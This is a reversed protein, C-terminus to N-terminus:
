VLFPLSIFSLNVFCFFYNQEVLVIIKIKTLRGTVLLM